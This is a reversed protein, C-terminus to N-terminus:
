RTGPKKAKRYPVAGLAAARAMAEDGRRDYRQTTTVNAHGALRQVMSLDAGADLLESVYSRRLDHPSFDAVRAQAARRRLMDYVAQATMRRPVLGRSRGDSPFFLPGPEPGRVALWDDLAEPAGPMLPVQREKRGKGRRVRLVGQERDFDAVDLGVVETRRLGGGYLVALLAADRRGIATDDKACAVFLKQVEQRSLHRGAPLTSVRVGQLDAARHYEEAGMLGLRWTEKLVGRLAALCLNTTSPSLQESLAARLAQCHQYRLSAWSVSLPDCLPCRDRKPHDCRDSRLLRALITLANGMARRSNPSDLRALYVAAPNRDAPLSVKAPVLEGNVSVLDGTRIM